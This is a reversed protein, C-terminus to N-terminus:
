ASTSSGGDLRTLARDALQALYTVVHGSFSRGSVLQVLTVYAGHRIAILAAYAQGNPTTIRIVDALRDDGFAPLLVAGVYHVHQDYGYPTHSSFDACGPREDRRMESFWRSAVDSPLDLVVDFVSGSPAKFVAAAGSQLDPQDIKTGCVGRPDPNNAANASQLSIQRFTDGRAGVGNLDDLTLLGAALAAQNKPVFRDSGAVSILPHASGGGCGVCLALVLLSGWATWYRRKPRDCIWPRHSNQM